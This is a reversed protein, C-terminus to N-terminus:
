IMQGILQGIKVREKNNMKNDNFINLEEKESYNNIANEDFDKNSEWGNDKFSEFLTSCSFAADYINFIINFIQVYLLM